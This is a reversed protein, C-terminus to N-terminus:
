RATTAEDSIRVLLFLTGPTAASIGVVDTYYILLFASVMSFTLNNSVDGAAYGLYQMPRFKM